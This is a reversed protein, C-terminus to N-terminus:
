NTDIDPLEPVDPADNQSDLGFTNVLINVLGWVSIMVFIGVIGWIMMDKGKGKAEESDSVVYKFVGWIFVLVALAIIIPIAVNILGLILNIIDELNSVETDLNVDQAFTVVPLLLASLVLLTKKM